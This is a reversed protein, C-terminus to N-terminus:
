TREKPQKPTTIRKSDAICREYGKKEALAMARDIKMSNSFGLTVTRETKLAKEVAEVEVQQIHSIISQKAEPWALLLIRTGVDIKYPIEKNILLKYGKVIGSYLPHGVFNNIKVNVIDGDKFEGTHTLEIEKSGPAVTTTSMTEIIKAKAEVLIEDLWQWDATTPPQNNM